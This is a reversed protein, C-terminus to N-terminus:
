VLFASFGATWSKKLGIKKLIESWLDDTSM